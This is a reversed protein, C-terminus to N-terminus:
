EEFIDVREDIRRDDSRKLEYNVGGINELRDTLDKLTLLAKERGKIKIRKMIETIFVAPFGKVLEFIEEDGGVLELVVAEELYRIENVEDFREPRLLANDLQSVENATGFIMKKSKNFGELKDLIDSINKAPVNDIDELIIADPNFLELISSVVDTSLESLNNIRITRLKLHYAISKVLNSKGTGPPGYFLMSRSYGQDSYLKLEEAYERGRQTTHFNVCSVDEKVYFNQGSMGLVVHGSSYKEWFIKELVKIYKDLDEKLVFVKETDENYVLWGFRVGEIDALYAGSSESVTQVIVNSYESDRILDSLMEGFITDTIVRWKMNNFYTYPDNLNYSDEVNQKISFGLKIYDLITSSERMDVVDEICRKAVQLLPKWNKIKRPNFRNLRLKM